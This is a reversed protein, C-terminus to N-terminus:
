NQVILPSRSLRFNQPRLGHQNAWVQQGSRIAGNNTFITGLFLSRPSLLGFTRARAITELPGMPPHPPRCRTWRPPRCFRNRSPFPAYDWDTSALQPPELPDLSIKAQISQTFDEVKFDPVPTNPDMKNRLKEAAHGDIFSDVNSPNVPNNDLTGSVPDNILYTWATWGLFLVALGLAFWEVNAELFKTVKEM